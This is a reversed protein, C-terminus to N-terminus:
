NGLIQSIISVGIQNRENEDDSISVFCECHTVSILLIYILRFKLKSNFWKVTREPHDVFLKALNSKLVMGNVCFVKVLEIVLLITNRLYATYKFNRM